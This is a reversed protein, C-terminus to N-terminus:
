SGQLEPAFKKHRQVGRKLGLSDRVCTLDTVISRAADAPVTDDSLAVREIENLAAEVATLDDLKYTVSKATPNILM